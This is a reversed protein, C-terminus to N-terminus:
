GRSRGSGVGGAMSPPSVGSVLDRAGDEGARAHASARSLPHAHTAACICPVERLSESDVEGGAAIEPSAAARLMAYRAHASSPDITWAAISELRSVTINADGTAESESALEGSMAADRQAKTRACPSVPHVARSIGSVTSPRM